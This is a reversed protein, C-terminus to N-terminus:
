KRAEAHFGFTRWAPDAASIEFRVAHDSGALGATDIEFRLWGDDNKHQRSFKEQGDIFVRFRVAGKGNKRSFFDAMATYGVLKQGLPATPYEIEATAGPLVPALIGRRPQYEVELTRNELKTAGCLFGNAVHSCPEREGLATRKSVDAESFHDTFDYSVTAAPKQYLRLWFRGIKQDTSSQLPATEVSRSGDLSVEWIRGYGDTDARGAMRPLIMDGLFQRGRQDAWYPSFTILDGARFQSRVHAALTTWEADTERRKPAWISHASETLALLVLGAFLLKFFRASM